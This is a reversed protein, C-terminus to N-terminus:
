LGLYVVLFVIAAFGLLVIVTLRFRSANAQHRREADENARLQAALLAKTDDDM